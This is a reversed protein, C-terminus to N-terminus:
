LCPEFHHKNLHYSYNELAFFKCTQFIFFVFFLINSNKIKDYISFLYKIDEKTNGIYNECVIYNVLM